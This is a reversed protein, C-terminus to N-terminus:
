KYKNRKRPAFYDEEKSLSNVAHFQGSRTELTEKEIAQNIIKKNKYSLSEGHFSLMKILVNSFWDPVFFVKFLSVRKDLM